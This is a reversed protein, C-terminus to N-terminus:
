LARWTRMACTLNNIGEEEGVKGPHHLPFCYLTGLRGTTIVSDLNSLLM